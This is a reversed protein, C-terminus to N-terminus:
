ILRNVEETYNKKTTPTDPPMIGGKIARTQKLFSNTHDHLYPIDPATGLLLQSSFPTNGNYKLLNVLPVIMPPIKRVDQENGFEKM